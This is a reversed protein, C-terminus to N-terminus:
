HCLVPLVVSGLAANLAPKYQLRLNDTVLAIFESNTPKNQCSTINYGFFSSFSECNGRNWALEIAHRIAREVRSSTTNYKKAVHPYLQKTVCDLLSRDQAAEIIATRLYHYGKIHAPIGITHIIDTVVIELDTCERSVSKHAVSKIVSCLTEIDYPEALFYSAGNEIAQREIYSNQIPSTIIFKTSVYSLDVVKNMLAIADLNPLSLDSILVDPNDNKVTDFIVNGDKKRTYAFIDYERLKSAIRIGYEASDDGILVRIQNYNM